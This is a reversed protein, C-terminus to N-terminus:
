KKNMYDNKWSIRKSIHPNIVAEGGISEVYKKVNKMVNKWLEDAGEFIDKEVTSDIFTYPRDVGRTYFTISGDANKVLGFQRNGALPHGAIIFDSIGVPTFTWTMANSSVYYDTTMVAMGEKIEKNIVPIKMGSNVVFYMLATYPKESLWLKQEKENYADFRETAKAGWVEM